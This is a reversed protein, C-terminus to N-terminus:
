RRRPTSPDPTGTGAGRRLAGALEWTGVAAALAVVGIFVERVLMLSLLIAGGLGVGVSIAAALNRGARSPRVAPTAPAGDSAMAPHTTM